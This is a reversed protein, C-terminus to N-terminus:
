WSFNSLFTINKFKTLVGTFVDTNQSPDKADIDDTSYGYIKGTANIADSIAVISETTHDETAIAYWTDNVASIANITDGWAQDSADKRGIAIKPPCPSQAFFSQAAKYVNSTSEFGDAEVSKLDSYFRIRDQWATHVAVFLPIGFGTQAVAGTEDIVTINIISNLSAM